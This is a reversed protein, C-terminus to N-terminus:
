QRARKCEVLVDIVPPTDMARWMYWTDTASYWHYAVYMDSNAISWIKCWPVSTDITSNALCLIASFCRVDDKQSGGDICHFCTFFSTWQDLSLCLSLFFLSVDLLKTRWVLFLSCFSVGFTPLEIMVTITRLEWTRILTERTLNLIRIEDTTDM